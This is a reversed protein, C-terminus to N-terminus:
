KPPCEPPPDPRKCLDPSAEPPSLPVPSMGGSNESSAKEHGARDAHAAPEQARKQAVESRREAEEAKRAAESAWPTAKQSNSRKRMQDVQQTPALVAANGSMTAGRGAPAAPGQPQATAQGQAVLVVALVVLERNMM